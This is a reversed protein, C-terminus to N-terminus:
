EVPFEKLMKDLLSKATLDAKKIKERLKKIEHPPIEEEDRMMRIYENVASTIQGETVSAHEKAEEFAKCKSFGKTKANLMNTVGILLKKVENSWYDKSQQLRACQLKTYEGLAGELTQQVRTIWNDRNWAMAVIINAAAILDDKHIRGLKVRIGKQKLLDYIIESM